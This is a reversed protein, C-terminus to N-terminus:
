AAARRGEAEAQSDRQAVEAMIRRRDVSLALDIVDQEYLHLVMVVEGLTEALAAASLGRVAAITADRSEQPTLPQM